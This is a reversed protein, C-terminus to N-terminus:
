TTPGGWSDPKRRRGHGRIRIRARSAGARHDATAAPDASADAFLALTRQRNGPTRCADDDTDPELPNTEYTVAEAYDNLRRRRQGRRVPRHRHTAIRRLRRARRRGSRRARIRATGTNKLNTLGDGDADGAADDLLPQFGHAWKGSTRCETRDGDASLPDSGHVDEEARRWDTGTATPPNPDTDRERERGNVATADPDGLWDNVSALASATLASRYIRVYDLKGGGYPNARQLPGGGLLL